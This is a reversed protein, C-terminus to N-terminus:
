LSVPTLGTAPPTVSWSSVAPGAKDRGVFKGKAKAAAALTDCSFSPTVPVSERLTECARKLCFCAFGACWAWPQGENGDMYLRVWPGRNQGGIELPHQALHQMAYAVVLEGLSRGNGPLSAVAATMPAILRGFTDGDVIGTIGVGSARQFEKVAEETAPGFDGDIAVHHGHLSLWEQILKVQGQKDGRRLPKQLQQDSM